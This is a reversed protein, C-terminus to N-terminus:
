SKGKKKLAKAIMIGKQKQDVQGQHIIKDKKKVPKDLFDKIYNSM